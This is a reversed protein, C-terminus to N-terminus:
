LPAPLRNTPEADRKTAAALPSPPSPSPALPPDPTGHAQQPGQILETPSHQSSRLNRGSPFRPAAFLPSPLPLPLCLCLSRARIDDYEYQLILSQYIIIGHKELRVEVWPGAPRGPSTTWPQDDLSENPCTSPQLPSYVTFVSSTAAEVVYIIISCYLSCGVEDCMIWAALWSPMAPRAGARSDLVVYLLM